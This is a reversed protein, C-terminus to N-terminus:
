KIKCVLSTSLLPLFKGIFLLRSKVHNVLLSSYVFVRVVLLKAYLNYKNVPYRTYKLISFNYWFFFVLHFNYYIIMCEWYTREIMELILWLFEKSDNSFVSFNWFQLNQIKRSYVVLSTVLSGGFQLMNCDGLKLSVMFILSVTSYVSFCASVPLISSLLPYMYMYNLKEFDRGFDRNLDNVLVTNWYQM